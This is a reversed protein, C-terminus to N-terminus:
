HSRPPLTFTTSSSTIQDSCSHSAQVSSLHRVHVVSSLCVSTKPHVSGGHLGHGSRTSPPSKEEKTTQQQHKPPPAARRGHQSDARLRAWFRFHTLICPISSNRTTRKTVTSISTILWVPLLISPFGARPFGPCIPRNGRRGGRRPRTTPFCLSGRRGPRAPRRPCTLRGGRRGPRAPCRPDAPRGRRPRASGRGPRAPRDPVLPVPHSSQVDVVEDHGHVEEHDLPLVQLPSRRSSRCSLVLAVPVAHPLPAWSCLLLLPEM